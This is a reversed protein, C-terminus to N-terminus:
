FVKWSEDSGPISSTWWNAVYVVGNYLVKDGSNYISGEVYNLTGDENPSNILEWPGNPTDPSEGTTWWKCRYTNGKYVVTDGSTYVKTSSYTDAPPVVTGGDNVTITCSISVSQGASDTVTYTLKYSGATQTDVTGSVAIMNTLSGDEKDTATVGAMPDFTSGVTVTQNKVGTIIPKGDTVPPVGGGSGFNKFVDTFEYQTKVGQNSETMADRNLSWFSTMALKETIAQNVVLDCWATTFIPDSGSEFGISVTTGIKAYAQEDSLTIGYKGYNNKLQNKLSTVARLSATGYNEGPKLVGSGYCMAMINVARLSVGEALYSNLVNLGEYTLGDPLVPLTLVVDVGTKDQLKKIAKANAENQSKNQAGGEVDLDIRTLGYGNVIDLYTNYLVEVDQTAQWFATGSAGGFSVCVDGGLARVDSISKKIGKYQDDNKGGAESLLQYGGWGWTLKGGSVGGASQIFALNYWANGTDRSIQGLNIAGDNNYGDKTVWECMDAYPAYVQAPWEVGQGVSFDESQTDAMVYPAAALIPASPLVMSLSMCFATGLSLIRKVTHKM